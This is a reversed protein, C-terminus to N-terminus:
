STSPGSREAIATGVVVEATAIDERRGADFLRHFIDGLFMAREVESDSFLDIRSKECDLCLGHTIGFDDHPPIEGMFHQCYSCWKLM